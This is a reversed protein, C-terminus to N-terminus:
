LSTTICFEEMDSKIWIRQQPSGILIESVMAVEQFGGKVEQYEHCLNALGKGESSVSPSLLLGPNYQTQAGYLPVSRGANNWERAPLVYM